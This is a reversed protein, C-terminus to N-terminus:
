AANHVATPSDDAPAEDKSIDAHASERCAAICSITVLLACILYVSIGWTKGDMLTVMGTALIPTIFGMFNAIQYGLGIGTTRVNTPFLESFFAPQVAYLSGNLIAYGVIVAIFFLTVNGSNVFWFFPFACAIALFGGSIMVKKRGVKDSLYGMAPWTFMAVAAAALQAYLVTDRSFGVNRTAYSLLFGVITWGLASEGVRSGMALLISRKGNRLVEVLPTKPPPTGKRRMERFLPTEQLNNRVYLGVGLLVISFLFPVRWGGNMLWGHPILSFVLTSIFVGLVNGLPVIAGFLGRKGPPAYEVLAATAGGYEGGVGIGQMFRLVVILTPAWIGAQAYTPLVGILFTALACIILSPVLSKKRGVKDGIHGFLIAGLPRAVFTALLTAYSAMLGAVPSLNPFFLQPFVVASATTFIFFDYFEVATGVMASGIVTRIQKKEEEPLNEDYFLGM